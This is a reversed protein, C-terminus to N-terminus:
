LTTLNEPVLLTIMDVVLKSPPLFGKKPIAYMTTPHMQKRMPTMKKNMWRLNPLVVWSIIFM